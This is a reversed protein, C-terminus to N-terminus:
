LEVADMAADDPMLFYRTGGHPGEVVIAELTGELARGSGKTTGESCALALASCSAFAVARVLSFRSDLAPRLREAQLEEVRTIPMEQYAGSAPLQSHGSPSRDTAFGLSTGSAERRARRTTPRQGQWQPAMPIAAWRARM